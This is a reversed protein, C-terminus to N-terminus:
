KLLPEQPAPRESPRRDATGPFAEAFVATTASAMHRAAEVPPVRFLDDSLVEPGVLTLGGIQHLVRLIGVLDFTGRGPLARHRFTDKLLSEQFRGPHGDSVQVGTIRAGPISALLAMDPRGQAFHWIDLLIGGNPRDALRVIEWATALDPVPPFPTFELHVRLGREAALDCLTAFADALDSTTADSPYPALCSLGRVGLRDCADLVAATPSGGLDRAPPRHPYWDMAGDLVSVAIGLDAARRAVETPPPGEGVIDGDAVSASVASFGAAAAADIREIMTSSRFSAHWLIETGRPRNPGPSRQDPM